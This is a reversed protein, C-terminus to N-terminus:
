EKPTDDPKTALYDDLTTIPQSLQPPVKQEKFKSEIHDRIWDVEIKTL